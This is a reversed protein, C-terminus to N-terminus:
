SRVLTGKHQQPANQHKDCAVTGTTDKVESALYSIIMCFYSIFEM